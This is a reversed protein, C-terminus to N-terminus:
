LKLAKKLSEQEEESLIGNQDMIIILRGDQNTVQKMYATNTSKIISPVEYLQESEVNIIGLMKDVEYAITMANSNTVILRTDNDPEKNELGFKSRLSYVPIRDGRLKIIGKMNDPANAAKEMPIYKEVTSVAMIDFGFEGEGLKFVAQKTVM